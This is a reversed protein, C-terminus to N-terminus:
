TEPIWWLLGIGAAVLAFAAAALGIGIDMNLFAGVSQCLVVAAVLWAIIAMIRSQLSRTGVPMSLAVEYPHGSPGPAPPRVTPAPVSSVNADEIASVDARTPGYRARAANLADAVRDPPGGVFDTLISLCTPTAGMLAISRPPRFGNGTFHIALVPLSREDIVGGIAGGGTVSRKEVAVRDVSAWPFLRVKRGLQLRLGEPDSALTVGSRALRFQAISIPLAVVALVAVVAVKQGDDLPAFPVIAAAVAAVIIPGAVVGFYLKRSSATWSQPADVPAFLAEVEAKLEDRDGAGGM